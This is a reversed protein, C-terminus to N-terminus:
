EVKRWEEWRRIDAIAKQKIKNVQSQSINMELSIQTENKKFKYKLELLKYWEENIFQLNYELISNDLEINEIEEKIEEIEIEKSLKRKLKLDTIRIVEREAYSTGDSSSQVREEFGPSSSEVEISVDCEKLEQNIKDIQNKLVEIRYNLTAIKKEKNFYNYLKDETKKFKDRSM